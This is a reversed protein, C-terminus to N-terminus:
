TYGRLRAAKVGLLAACAELFSWLTHEVDGCDARVDVCMALTPLTVFYEVAVRRWQEPVVALDGNRLDHSTALLRDIRNSLADIQVDPRWITQRSLWVAAAEAQERALNVLITM